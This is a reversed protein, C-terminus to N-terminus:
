REESRRQVHYEEVDAILSKLFSYWESWNNFDDVFSEKYKDTQNSFTYSYTDEWARYSLLLSKFREISIEQLKKENLFFNNEIEKLIPMYVKLSGKLKYQRSVIDIKKEIKEKLEDM